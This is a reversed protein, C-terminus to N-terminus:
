QIYIVFFDFLFINERANRDKNKDLLKLKLDQIEQFNWKRFQQIFRSDDNFKPCKLLENCWM